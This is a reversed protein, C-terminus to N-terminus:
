VSGGRQWNLRSPTIHAPSTKSGDDSSSESDFRSASYSSSWCCQALLLLLLGKSTYALEPWTYNTTPHKLLRM